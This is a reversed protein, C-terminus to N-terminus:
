HSLIFEAISQEFIMTDVAKQILLYVIEIIKQVFGM